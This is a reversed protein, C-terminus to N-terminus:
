QRGTSNSNAARTPTQFLQTKELTDTPELVKDILQEQSLTKLNVLEAKDNNNNHQPKERLKRKLEEIDM